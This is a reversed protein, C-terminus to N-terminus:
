GMLYDSLAIHEVHLDINYKEKFDQWTQADRHYCRYGVFLCLQGLYNRKVQFVDLQSDRLDQHSSIEKGKYSIGCNIAFAITENKDEETACWWVESRGNNLIDDIIM